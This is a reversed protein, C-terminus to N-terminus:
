LHLRRTTVGDDMYTQLRGMLYTRTTRCVYTSLDCHLFSNFNLKIVILFWTALLIILNNKQENVVTSSLPLGSVLWRKLTIPNMNFEKIINLEHYMYELLSLMQWLGCLSWNFLTSIILIRIFILLRSQARPSLETDNFTYDIVSGHM